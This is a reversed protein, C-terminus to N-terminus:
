KWTFQPPNKPRSSGYGMPIQSCHHSGGGSSFDTQFFTLGLDRRTGISHGAPLSFFLHNATEPQLWPNARPNGDLLVLIKGVLTRIFKLIKGLTRTEQCLHLHTALLGMLTISPNKKDGIVDERKCPRSHNEGDHCQNTCVLPVGFDCPSKISNRSFARMVIINGDPLSMSPPM